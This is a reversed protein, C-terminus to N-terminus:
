CHRLQSGRRREPFNQPRRAGETDGVRGRKREVVAPVEDLKCNEEEGACMRFSRAPPQCVTDTQLYAALQRSVCFPPPPNRTTRRCKQTRRETGNLQTTNGAKDHRTSLESRRSQEQFFQKSCLSERPSVRANRGGSNSGFSLAVSKDPVGTLAVTSCFLM